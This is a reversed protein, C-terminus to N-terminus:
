FGKLWQKLVETYSQTEPKAINLKKCIRPPMKDINGVSTDLYDAIEKRELNLYLTVLLYKIQLESLNAEELTKVLSPRIQTVLKKFTIWNEKKQLKNEKLFAELEATNLQHLESLRLIKQYIEQFYEFDNKSMLEYYQTIEQPLEKGINMKRLFEVENLIEKLNELAASTEEYNQQIQILKANLEQNSEKYSQEQQLLTELQNALQKKEAIEFEKQQQLAKLSQKQQERRKRYRNTFWYVSFLVFFGLAAILGQGWLTEHWYPTVYLWFKNRKAQTEPIQFKYFGKVELQNLGAKLNTVLLKTEQATKWKTWNKGQKLRYAYRIQEPAHHTICHPEFRLAREEASFSLTDGAMYSEEKATWTLSDSNFGEVAYIYPSLQPIDFISTDIDFYYAKADGTTFLVRNEGDAVLSNQQPEQKFEFGNSEDYWYFHNPSNTSNQNTLSQYFRELHIALLGNNRSSALLIRGGNVVAVTEVIGDLIHPAVKKFEGNIYLFLGKQGKLSGCWIGGSEDKALTMFGIDLTDKANNHNLVHLPTVEKTNRNYLAQKGGLAIFYDENDIREVDFVNSNLLSIKTLHEKLKGEYDFFKVGSTGFALVEKNKNDVWTGLYTKKNYAEKDFYYFKSDSYKLISYGSPIMLKDNDLKRMGFYFQPNFSKPFPLSLESIVKFKYEKNITDLKYLGKEFAGVFWNSKVRNFAWITGDPLGHTNDFYFFSNSHIKYLGKEAGIWINGDKDEIIKNATVKKFNFKQFRDTFPNYFNLFSENANCWFVKNSIGIGFRVWENTPRSYIRKNSIGSLINVKRVGNETEAKLTFNDHKKILINYIDNKSKLLLKNTGKQTDYEYFSISDKETKGFYWNKNNLYRSYFPLELETKNLKKEITNYEIVAFKENSKNINYVIGIIWNNNSLKLIKQVNITEYEHEIPLIYEQVKDKIIVVISKQRVAIVTNKFSKIDSIYANDKSLDLKISKFSIGDFVSLGNKTGVWIKGDETQHLTTVQLAPLGDELTYHKYSIHQAQVFFSVLLLILLLTYRM